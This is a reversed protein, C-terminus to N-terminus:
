NLHRGMVKWRKADEMLKPENERWHAIRDQFAVMDVQVNIQQFTRWWDFDFELGLLAKFMWEGVVPDSLLMFPISITGPESAAADLIADQEALFSLDVNFGKKRASRFVEVLPRRILVLQLDPLEQKVIRWIVGAATEVTGIMGNKYSNIFKDVTDCEALIEHGIALPPRALPYNLYHALWATRSRPLAMMLFM